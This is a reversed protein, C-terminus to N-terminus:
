PAKLILINEDLYSKSSPVWRQRWKRIEVLEFGEKQAVIGLIKATPIPVQFYSAQDGVVYAARAGPRLLPLASRFHLRMGGVYERLVKSYLRAFGDTKGVARRDIQDSLRMVLPIDTTLDCDKDTAYIGKTHSRVMTKKIARLSERDQVAGLYALELRANRTYDHETPYPPSSIICDFGGVPPNPITADCNRSDGSFVNCQASLYGRAIPIDKLMSELKADFAQFIDGGGANKSCYLEPGFRVKASTHVFQNVAALMMLDKARTSPAHRQIALKLAIADYLANRSLWGRGIM